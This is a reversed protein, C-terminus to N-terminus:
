KPKIKPKRSQKFRNGLGRMVRKVGEADTAKASDAMESEGDDTKNALGVYVDDARRIIKVARDGAEGHLELEERVYQRVKSQPIPGVGMGFPRETSLEWFANWLLM